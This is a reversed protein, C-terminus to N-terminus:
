DSKIQEKYRDNYEYLKRREAERELDTMKEIDIMKELLENFPLAIGCLLAYHQSTSTLGKFFIYRLRDESYKVVENCRRLLSYYDAISDNGAGLVRSRVRQTTPYKIKDLTKSHSINKLYFNKVIQTCIKGIGYDGIEITIRNCVEDLTLKKETM